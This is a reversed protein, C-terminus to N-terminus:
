LLKNKLYLYFIKTLNIYDIDLDKIEMARSDKDVISYTANIIEKITDITGIGTTNIKIKSLKKSVSFPLKIFAISQRM